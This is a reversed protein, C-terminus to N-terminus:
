FISLILFYISVLGKTIITAVNPNTTLSPKPLNFAIDISLKKTNPHFHRSKNPHVIYMSTVNSHKLTLM